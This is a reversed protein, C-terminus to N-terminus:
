TFSRCQRPLRSIDRSPHMWIGRLVLFKSRLGVCCLGVYRLIPARLNLKFGNRSWIVIVGSHVIVIRVIGWVRYSGRTNRGIPDGMCRGVISQPIRLLIVIRYQEFSNLLQNTPLNPTSHYSGVTDYWSITEHYFMSSCAM